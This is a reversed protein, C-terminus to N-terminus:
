IPVDNAVERWFGCRMNLEDAETNAFGDAEVV